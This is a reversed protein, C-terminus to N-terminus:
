IGVDVLRGVGGWIVDVHMYGEKEEEPKWTSINGTTKGSFSKHMKM